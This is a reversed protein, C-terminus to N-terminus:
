PYYEVEIDFWAVMAIGDADEGDGGGSGRPEGGDDEESSSLSNARSQDATSDVQKERLAAALAPVAEQVISGEAVRRRLSSHWHNKVANDTRGELSKAIEAWKNGYQAQAAIILQEASAVMRSLLSQGLLREALAAYTAKGAVGM